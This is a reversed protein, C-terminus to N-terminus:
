TESWSHLTMGIKSNNHYRLICLGAQDPTFFTGYSEGSGLQTWLYGGDSSVDYYIVNPTGSVIRFRLAIISNITMPPAGIIVSASITTPNTYKDVQYRVGYAFSFLFLILKGTSSERLCIGAQNYNTQYLLASFLATITIPASGLAKVLINYSVGTDVANTLTVVDGVQAAVANGQNVWAFDTLVPPTYPSGGTQDVWEADGDDNSAKALVQGTTGGIPLSGSPMDIWEPASPSADSISLIQGPTGGEPLSGSPMDHWAGDAGLYRDANGSGDYIITGYKTGATDARPVHASINPPTVGRNIQWKINDHGAPAAPLADNLNSIVRTTEAM